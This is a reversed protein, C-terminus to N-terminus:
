FMSSNVSFSKRIYMMFSSKRKKKADAVMKYSIDECFSLNSNELKRDCARRKVWLCTSKKMSNRM